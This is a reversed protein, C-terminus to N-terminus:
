RWAGNSFTKITGDPFKAKQGETYKPKVSETKTGAKVEPNGKKDFKVTGKGFLKSTDQLIDKNVEYSQTFGTLAKMFNQAEQNSDLQKASMGTASMLTQKILPLKAQIADRYDQNQTSVARGFSQGGPIITMDTFPAKIGETNQLRHIASSAMSDDVSRIGGGERLKDYNTGIDMLMSDLDEKAKEKATEEIGMKQEEPTPVLAKAYNNLASEDGTDAVAKLIRLSEARNADMPKPASAPAPAMGALATPPAQAPLPGTLATPQTLSALASPTVGGTIGALKSKKEAEENLKALQSMMLVQQLQQYQAAAPDKGQLIMGVKELGSMGDPGASIFNDFMAM